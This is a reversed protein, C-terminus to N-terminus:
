HNHSSADIRNNVLGPGYSSGDVPCKPIGDPFYAPNNTVPPLYAPYNGTDVRYMEIASNLIDINTKCATAKATTASQAIRPIAIAALAALILVVILLEILTVGKRNAAKVM